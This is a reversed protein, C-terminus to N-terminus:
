KSPSGALASEAEVVDQEILEANVAVALRYADGAAVIVQAAPDAANGVAWVGEVGTRGLEDTSVCGNESTHCDLVQVISAEVTAGPEYFLADCRHLEGGELRVGTLCDPGAVLALVRGQVIKVGCAALSACAEGELVGMEHTFLTVDSSFQRVLLAQQVSSEGTGLVALTQDQFEWGHCYPCQFFDKGWRSDAGEIDPLVDRLGLALIIQRGTLTRGDDLCVRRDPFVKEVTADILEVGYGQVEERALELFKLPPVGDRTLYGHIHEARVNRPEGADVVAVRRRARGLLLAASLGAAGGGVIVVDYPAERNM